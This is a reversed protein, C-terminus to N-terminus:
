CPTLDSCIIHRNVLKDCLPPAYPSIQIFRNFPFFDQIAQFGGTQSRRGVIDLRPPKEDDIFRLELFFKGFCNKGPNIRDCLKCRFGRNQDHDKSSQIDDCVPDAFLDLLSRHRSIILRNDGIWLHFIDGLLVLADMQKTSPHLLNMLATYSPSAPDSLHADSIWLANM